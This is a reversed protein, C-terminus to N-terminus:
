AYLAAELSQRPFCDLATQESCNVIDIDATQALAIFGQQWRSHNRKGNLGDPHQGHFHAQGNTDQCDYGILLVRDYGLYRALQIVHDGSCRGNQHIGQKAFGRGQSIPVLNLGYQKAADVNSTWGKAPDIRAHYTDWWRLDCAYM